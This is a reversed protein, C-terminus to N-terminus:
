ILPATTDGSWARTAILRTVVVRRPASGAADLIPGLWYGREPVYTQAIETTHGAVYPTARHGPADPGCEPQGSDIHVWGDGRREISHECHACRKM